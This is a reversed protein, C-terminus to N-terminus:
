AEGDECEDIRLALAEAMGQLDALRGAWESANMGEKPDGDMEGQEILTDIEEEMAELADYATVYLGWLRDHPRRPDDTSRSGSM